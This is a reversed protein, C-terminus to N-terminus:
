RQLRTSAGPRRSILLEVAALDRLLRSDGRQRVSAEMEHIESGRNNSQEMSTSEAGGLPREMLSSRRCTAPAKSDPRSKVGSPPVAHGRDAAGNLDGAARVIHERVEVLYSSMTLPLVPQDARSELRVARHTDAGLHDLHALDAPVLQRHTILDGLVVRRTREAKANEVAGDTRDALARDFRKRIPGARTDREIEVEDAM